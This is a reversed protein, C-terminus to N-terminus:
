RVKLRSVPRNLSLTEARLFLTRPKGGKGVIRVERNERDIDDIDISLVEGVRAGTQFLLRIFAM